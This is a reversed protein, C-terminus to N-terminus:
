EAQNRLYSQVARRAEGVQYLSGAICVVGQPGALAVASQIGGNLSDYATAQGPQLRAVLESPESARPSDPKVAVVIDDQRVLVCLIGEIDKDALIGLVFIVSQGPYVDDLTQRLARAGDPNHAGDVIIDPKHGFIEFRGPWVAHRLGSQIATETLRQESEALLTLSMLVLGANEAQHRGMLSISYRNECGNFRFLIQQQNNDIGMSCSVYECGAAYLPSGSKKAEQIIVELSEGQAATVVPRGTKIIGAKHRAIDSLEPGLKDIHERTVNTIISVDPIIVNTSDIRGGLGAEIVAYEVGALAFHHFAAATILEFETPHEMGEATMKEALVAVKQIADAFEEQRIPTGDISIRETYDELHPSIYMGTRIGSATLVATLMATTSGKGNSGAVHISRFSREPRGLLDLLKEIRALGLNIGFRQLSALYNLADQYTM